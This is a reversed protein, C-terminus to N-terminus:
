SLFQLKGEPSSSLLNFLFLTWGPQESNNCIHESVFLPELYQKQSFCRM